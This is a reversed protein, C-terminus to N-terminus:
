AGKRKNETLQIEFLPLMRDTISASQKEGIRVAGCRLYFREANPDGQIILKEFGLGFAKRCAHEVLRLGVGIGMFEPDVFLHGLEIGNDSLDELSYFGALKGDLECVYVRHDLVM